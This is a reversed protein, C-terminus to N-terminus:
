ISNVLLKICAELDENTADAGAKISALHFAQAWTTLETWPETDPAFMLLRKARPEMDQGEWLEHLEALNKPLDTPYGPCGARAGLELAPADTYVMVIHRRVAGTKTWDSKFALAIAELANEAADGGGVAEISSAFKNFDESEDCDGGLAYFPSVQMPESDCEYDRFTILKVRLEQVSKGAAEMAEVFMPYFSLAKTKVDDIIDYMSGTGDICMVLDVSYNLGQGAGKGFAM